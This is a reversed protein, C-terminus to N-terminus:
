ASIQKASNFKSIAKKMFKIMPENELSRFFTLWQNFNYQNESKPHHFLGWLQNDVGKKLVEMIRKHIGEQGSINLEPQEHAMKTAKEPTISVITENQLNILYFKNHKSSGTGTAYHEIPYPDAGIGIPMLQTGCERLCWIYRAAIANLIFDKDIELDGKYYQPLQNKNSEEMMANILAIKPHNSVSM